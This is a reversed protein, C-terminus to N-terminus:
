NNGAYKLSLLENRMELASAHFSEFALRLAVINVPGTTRASAASPLRVGEMAACMM